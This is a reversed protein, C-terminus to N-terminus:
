LEDLKKELTTVKRNLLFLYISVGIWIILIVSMVKYLVGNNHCQKKRECQVTKEPLKENKSIVDGALLANGHIVTYKNESNRVTQESSVPMIVRLGTINFLFFMVFLAICLKNKM